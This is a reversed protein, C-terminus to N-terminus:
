QIKESAPPTNVLTVRRFQEPLGDEIDEPLTDPLDEGPYCWSLYEQLTIEAGYHRMAALVPTDKQITKAM